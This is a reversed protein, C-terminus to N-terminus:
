LENSPFRITDILTGHANFIEIHTYTGFAYRTKDSNPIGRMGYKLSKNDLSDIDIFVKSYEGNNLYSDIIIKEDLIRGYRSYMEPGWLTYGSIEEYDKILVTDMGTNLNILRINNLLLLNRDFDYDIVKIYETTEWLVTEVGTDLNLRNVYTSAVANSIKLYVIAKGDESIQPCTYGGITKWNDYNEDMLYTSDWESILRLTDHIAIYVVDFDATSLRYRDGENRILLEKDGTNVNVRWIEGAAYVVA